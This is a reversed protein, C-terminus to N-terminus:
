ELHIRGAVNRGRRMVERKAVGAGKGPLGVGGGAGILADVIELTTFQEMANMGGNWGTTVANAAGGMTDAVGGRLDSMLVATAGMWRALVGKFSVQDTNCNGAGECITEFLRGDKVFNRQAAALFGKTRDAWKADAGALSSMVASGYLFTATNYSWMNHNVDVCGTGKADDTGDYVNFDGDILGVGAVWDYSKEAWTRAEQDGTFRALRAALQFFLGNSITSRYNYGGNPDNPNIKWKLGGNCRETNWRAKQTNFVNRAYEIWPLAGSAAPLGYEAASMAALGWWAQDDNGTADPTMFDNTGTVQSVLTNSLLANYQSDGTTHM